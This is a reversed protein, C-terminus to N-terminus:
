QNGDGLLDGLEHFFDGNWLEDVRYDGRLIGGRITRSNFIIKYIRQDSKVKDVTLRGDFELENLRDVVRQIIEDPITKMMSAEVIQQYSEELRIQDKSKM